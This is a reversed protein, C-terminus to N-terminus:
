RIATTKGYAALLKELHYSEREVCLPWLNGHITKVISALGLFHTIM